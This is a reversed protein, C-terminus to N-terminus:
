ADVWEGSGSAVFAEFLAAQSEAKPEDPFDAAKIMMTKGALPIMDSFRRVVRVDDKAQTAFRSRALRTWGRAAADAFGAEDDACVLYLIM